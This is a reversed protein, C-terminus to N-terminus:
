ANCWRRIPSPLATGRSCPSTLLALCSAVRAECSPLPKPPSWFPTAWATPSALRMSWDPFFRAETSADGLVQIDTHRQDSRIKDWVQVLGDAPGELWQLFHGDAYVLLGTVDAERNGEQAAQVLAQLAADDFPVVARSRYFMTCLPTPEAWGLSVRRPTSRPVLPPVQSM